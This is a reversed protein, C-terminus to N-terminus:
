APDKKARWAAAQAARGTHDYVEILSTVTAQVGRDHPDTHSLLIKYAELLPAEAERYRQLGNLTRGYTLLTIGTGMFDPPMNKRSIALAHVLMPEAKAYRGTENYLRGLNTLTVALDPHEDGLQKRTVEYDELMLPEAKDNKGMRRYLVALNNVATMTESDHNGLIARRLALARTGISEAPAFKGDQTLAWAQNTLVTATFRTSDGHMRRQGASAIALLSEATAFNQVDTYFIGLDNMTSLVDDDLPGKLRMLGNLAKHYLPEAEERGQMNYLVALEHTTQLANLSEGGQLSDYIARATVLPPEAKEYLGLKQYTAGISRLLRANVLPQSKFQDRASAIARALVDEDIVRLAADTANIAGLSAGFAAERPAAAAPSVKQDALAKRFRAKLDATLRDGMKAADLDALMGAQFEAVAQTESQAKEAARRQQAERLAFNTSVVVGALLALMTAAVGLVLTRNRRTFRSLQYMASPARALIPRSDLFREVDDGLAAASSYRREPDKELAKGTITILDIDPAHTGKWSAKLSRPPQECIIRLAEIISSNETDLPRGGTLMEFLLVGLSYVDTRLDVHDPNGRAQEPSMYPLTGKIVGVETVQSAAEVDSGTIRALGFDLIKITPLASAGTELSEHESVIINSPKIDRHIVGRQHAYNVAACISSFLRLRFRVERADIPGERDALYRGLTTGRVLEMAFYHEGNETRGADYIAAINPHKLRALTDVERQFIQLYREDLMGGRRVVKLAVHRRTHVQEAEFVTGMGGEGLRDVIRYPGINAPMGAMPARPAQTADITPADESSHEQSPKPPDSDHAL